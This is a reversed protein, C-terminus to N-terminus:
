PGFRSQTLGLLWVAAGSTYANGNGNLHAVNKIHCNAFVDAFGEREKYVKEQQPEGIDFLLEGALGTDHSFFMAVQTEQRRVGKLVLPPPFPVSPCADKPRLGSRRAAAVGDRGPIPSSSPRRSTKLRPGSGRAERAAAPPRPGCTPSCTCPPIQCVRSYCFFGAYRNSTRTHTRAHTHIHFFLASFLPGITRFILHTM